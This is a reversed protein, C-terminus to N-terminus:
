IVDKFSQDRHSISLGFQQNADMLQAQLRASEERNQNMQTNLEHWTQMYQQQITHDSTKGIMELITLCQVQVNKERECHQQVLKNNQKMMDKFAESLQDMRKLSQRLQAEIQHHVIKAQEHMQIRQLELEAVARKYHAIEAVMNSASSLIEGAVMATTTGTIMAKM